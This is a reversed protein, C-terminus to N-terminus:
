GSNLQRSRSNHVLLESPGPLPSSCALVPSPQSPPIEVSGGGGGGEGTLSLVASVAGTGAM